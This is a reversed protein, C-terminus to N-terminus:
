VGGGTVAGGVRGEAGGGACGGVDVGARGISGAMRIGDGDGLGRVVQVRCRRDRERRRGDLGVLREICRRCLVDGRRDRKMSWSWSIWKWALAGCVWIWFASSGKVMNDGNVLWVVCEGDDEGHCGQVLDICDIVQDLVWQGSCRINVCDVFKQSYYKQISKELFFLRPPWLKWEFILILDGFFLLVVIFFDFFFLVFDM